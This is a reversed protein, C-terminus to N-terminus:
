TKEVVEAVGGTTEEVGPESPEDEDTGTEVDVPESELVGALGTVVTPHFSVSRPDVTEAPEDLTAPPTKVM